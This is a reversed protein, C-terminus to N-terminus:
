QLKWIHWATCLREFQCGLEAVTDVEVDGDVIHRQQTTSRLVQLHCFGVSVIIQYRACLFEQRFHHQEVQRIGNSHEM